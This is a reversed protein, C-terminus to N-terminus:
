ESTIIELKKVVAWDCFLVAVLVRDCILLIHRLGLRSEFLLNLKRLLFDMRQRSGWDRGSEPVIWVPQDFRYFSSETASKILFFLLLFIFVSCSLTACYNPITKADPTQFESEIRCKYLDVCSHRM